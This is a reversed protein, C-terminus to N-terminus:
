LLRDQAFLLQNDRNQQLVSQHHELESELWLVRESIHSFHLRNLEKLHGKLLQLRRCFIYMPTGCVPSFWHSSVVELIQDHSAWM